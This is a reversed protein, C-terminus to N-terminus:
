DQDKPKRFVLIFVIVTMGALICLPTGLEELIGPEPEETTEEEKPKTTSNSPKATTATTQQSQTPIPTISHMYIASSIWEGTTFDRGRILIADEYVTVYYGQSGAVDYCNGDGYNDNCLHSVAATNFIRAAASIYGMTGPAEMQWQTHGSFVTVNDYKKLVNKVDQHNQVNGYGQANNSGSVTNPLPEHMIVLVPEYKDANDLVGDLWSLQEASYVANGYQYSDAGIFVILTGGLKYSYYPKDLPTDFPHGAYKLFTQLNQAHANADYQYTDKTLYGRDGAGLYVKPASPVSQCLSRLTKYFEEDAAEIADGAVIIGHAGPATKAVDELMTILNKEATKGSGIHLDSVIVLETVVDGAEPLLFNLLGSAGDATTILQFPVTSEGYQESYTYLLVTKADAPFSIGETMGGYVIKSAIEGWLFPAYGELRVGHEDGWYVKYSTANSQDPMTISLTGSAYGMAPNVFTFSATEPLTTQTQEAQTQAQTGTTQEDSAFVHASLMCFLLCICALLTLTRKM